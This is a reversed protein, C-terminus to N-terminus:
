RGILASATVCVCVWDVCPVDEDCIDGLVILSRLTANCIGRGPLSVAASVM